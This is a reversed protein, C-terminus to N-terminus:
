ASVPPWHIIQWRLDIDDTADNVVIAAEREFESMFEDAPRYTYSGTMPDIFEFVATNYAATTEQASTGYVGVLLLAHSNLGDGLTIWLGSAPWVADFNSTDSQLELMIDVSGKYAFDMEYGQKEAFSRIISELPQNESGSLLTFRRHRGCSSFFLLALLWFLIGSFHKKFSSFRCSSYVLTPGNHNGASKSYSLTM